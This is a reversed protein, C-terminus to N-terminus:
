LEMSIRCACLIKLCVAPSEIQLGHLLASGAHCIVGGAKDPRPELKWEPVPQGTKGFDQWFPFALSMVTNFCSIECQPSVLLVLSAKGPRLSGSMGWPFDALANQVRSHISTNKKVGPLTTIHTHLPATPNADGSEQLHRMGESLPETCLYWTEPVWWWLVTIHSWFLLFSSSKM